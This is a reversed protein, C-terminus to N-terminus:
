YWYEDRWPRHMRSSKKKYFKEFDIDALESLAAAVSEPIVKIVAMRSNQSNRKTQSLNLDNDSPTLCIMNEESEGM